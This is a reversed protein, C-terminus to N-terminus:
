SAKQGIAQNLANIDLMFALGGDGLRSASTIIKEHRFLKGLPKLVAQHNGIIKDVVLAFKEGQKHLIIVRVEEPNTGKLHFQERLNVFPILENNYMLTNTHNRAEIENAPLFMCTQIDAIPVLCHMDESQVLMTDLIAITQHLKITFSTGLDIESNVEVEGRIEMIKKKVVDMGVGRGSVETITNATSFGPQFILEYIEKESLKDSAQILGKEIAKNRIIEPNIGAGDDQVQIFVYNGSHFATLKILGKEPKNKRQREEAPEIGHDLCNRIIHMLPEALKDITNKDLETEMGQTIFEVEKGLHKSLDRILRKFRVVVDYVPVLRMELANDRFQRTLKTIQHYVEEITSMDEANMGSEFQSQVSVLETVLYMLIDLKKADVSIRSAAQKDLNLNILNQNEELVEQLKRINEDKTMDPTVAEEVSPKEIGEPANILVEELPVAEETAIVADKLGEQPEEEFLSADEGQSQYSKEVAELITLRENPPTNETQFHESNELFIEKEFLNFPSVQHISCEDMVFMFADEIADKGQDTALYIGWIEDEEENTGSDVLEYQGLEALESFINPLKIGRLLLGESVIFKIYYTAVGQEDTEEEDSILVEESLVESVERNMQESVQEMLWKHKYQNNEQALEDDKLLNQLHDVSQFTLDLIEGSLLLKNIRILDYLTELHHTYEEIYGFGYMGASGKLTHMVRFVAEIHDKSKPNTELELLDSELQHLLDLADEIFKNRFQALFDDM